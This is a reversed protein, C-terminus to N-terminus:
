EAENPRILEALLAANRAKAEETAKPDRTLICRLREGERVGAPLWVRPLHWEYVTEEGCLLVAVEGEIRDLTVTFAGPHPSAM